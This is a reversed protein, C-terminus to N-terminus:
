LESATREVAAVLVDIAKLYEAISLYEHPTHDLRSDGPGYAVMPCNWLPGLVNMDSTGTKLRPRPTGGRSRIAGSFARVLMNNRDTAVAVEPGSCEVTAGVEAAILPGPTHVGDAGKPPTPVAVGADTIFPALTRQPVKGLERCVREIDAPNIGMPLRFGVVARVRDYLGDSETNITRLAAQVLEFPSRRTQNLEAVHRKVGEWWAAALEPGSPEPGASHHCPMTLSYECLLRGKYGLTVGDWHSPEGIVCAKPKYQTAAFRAGRSSAAEEETAGIVILRVGKPLKARAAALVFTALPGKADVSGRGHLIDGGVGDRRVPIYGPVTDMHGLLVFDKTAGDAGPEYAPIGVANGAEDVQADFGLATMRSAIYEAVQQEEGSLSPIEVMRTLTEIAFADTPSATASRPSRIASQATTV